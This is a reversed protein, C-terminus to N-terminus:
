LRDITLGGDINIVSGTSYSFDGNALSVVARGIDEPTGWHKQLLLDTDYILSDYKEKVAGTMDTEIIGPRIEYVLVGKSALADAFLRATMSLAAKSVCYEGRNHSSVTASISTVYIMKPTFDRNDQKIMQAAVRQSLFFPGRCNINQLRDYSEPTVDLLENRKNPAVGANSVFLDIRGFEAVVDSILKDHADIDSIDAPFPVFKAGLEEVALKVEYIGKTTDNPNATLSNGAIDYGARALSLAIGRGIGRSAGTVFAVPRETKIINM